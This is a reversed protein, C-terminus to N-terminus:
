IEKLHRVFLKPLNTLKVVSREDIFEGYSNAGVVGHDYRKNHSSLRFIGFKGRNGHAAEMFHRCTTDDLLDVNRCENHVLSKHANTTAPM